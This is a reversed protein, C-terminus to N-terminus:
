ESEIENEIGECAAIYTLFHESFGSIEADWVGNYNIGHKENSVDCIYNHKGFPKPRMGSRDQDQSDSFVVIRDFSNSGYRERCWELTRATFIGYGGLKHYMDRIQSIIGFGSKPRTIEECRMGCHYTGATCVIKCSECQSIGLIAMAGAADMREFRSKGSMKATMSGSVDIIFLTNGPIKPLNEYSRLMLEEIPNRFEAGNMMYAKLYDLPLLMSTGIKKMGEAIIRSPVGAEVMNSINRMFALGGLKRDAILKEWAKRKDMGSSLMVEWTDPTKLTRNAIDKFLKKEEDTRPVPRTLFMVDRIKVNSNRDYKAFQYEDFNHFSEALGKRAKHPIPAKGNKWYLSVFDSIMDARTIIHPLLEAVYKKHSDYRLMERALFLPTHRLKMKKRAELALNYVKVPDVNPVLESIWTSIEKGDAYATDEWLLNALVSRRLLSYDDQKAAKAGGGGALREEVVATKPLRNTRKVSPNLKSM